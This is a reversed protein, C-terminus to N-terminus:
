RFLIAVTLLFYVTTYQVTMMFGWSVHDEIFSREVNRGNTSQIPRNNVSSTHLRNIAIFQEISVTQKTGAVFWKVSEYCPPTTLSGPYTYFRTMADAPFLGAMHPFDMIIAEVDHTENTATENSSHDDILNEYNHGALQALLDKLFINEAGLEFMIGFVTLGNRDSLVNEEIEANSHVLHIEMISNKSELVHESPTHFHFQQLVFTAPLNGGTVNFEGPNVLSYGGGDAHYSVSFKKESTIYNFSLPPIVSYVAEDYKVDIPSQKEYLEGVGCDESHIYWDGPRDYDVGSAAETKLLFLGCFMVSFLMWTTLSLM